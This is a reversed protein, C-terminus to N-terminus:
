ALRGELAKVRQELTLTELSKRRYEVLGALAEGESPLLEGEAVASMIKSQASACGEADAIDPLEIRVPRDKSAPVLKDVVLRAAAMDGGKAAAVVSKVIAELEDEMLALAMMTARNRTGKPKGAPNGSQGPKWATATKRPM